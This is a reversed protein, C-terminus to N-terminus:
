WIMKTLVYTPQINERNCMSRVKEEETVSCAMPSSTDGHVEDHHVGTTILVSKVGFKEAGLVDHHLSDGVHVVQSRSLSPVVSAAVDFAAQFVDPNPKGFVTISASPSMQRYHDALLGPMYSFSKGDFGVVRFDPNLVVMPLDRSAASKLLSRMEQSLDGTKFFHSTDITGDKTFAMVTSEALIFDADDPSALECQSNKLLEQTRQENWGFIVCRRGWRGSSIEPVAVEGSTIIGDFDNTDFGLSQLRPLNYRVPSPSNSLLVICKGQEKLRKVIAHSEGLAKHGDILVGYQDFFIVDHAEAVEQFGSCFHM